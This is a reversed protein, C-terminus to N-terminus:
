LKFEETFLMEVAAVGSTELVPLEDPNELLPPKEPPPPPPPPPPLQYNEQYVEELCALL